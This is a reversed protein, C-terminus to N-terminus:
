IVHARSQSSHYIPLDKIVNEFIIKALQKSSLRYSSHSESYDIMNQQYELYTANSMNKMFEFLEEMSAFDRKDIFCNKPVFDSIDNAGWYIPITGSNLCDFIKESIYGSVDKVNEYALSFKYQELLEYKNDALGKYSPFKPNLLRKFIKRKKILKPLLPYEKLEGLDWNHGYLDFLEPHQKEFWRIFAIRQTYLEDPFNSYKNSYIACCFKNKHALGSKIKKFIGNSLHARVFEPTDFIDNSYTFIKKFNSLYNQEWEHPAIIKSETRLLYSKSPDIKKYKTLASTYIVAVCDNPPNIDSTQLDYGAKEFLTKLHIWTAEFKLRGVLQSNPKFLKNQVCDKNKSIICIKEMPM